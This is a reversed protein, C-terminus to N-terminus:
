EKDLRGVLSLEFSAGMYKFHPRVSLAVQYWGPDDAVDLVQVKASRLPRRSRVEAPPNEQDAVYQRIWGNLERELDQREKWTGLQERQLVKLYHALRNVIFLYPLQTGLRHNLTAQQGEPSNAFLKPKQVSNASFFAANNSEKRMTLAIFGEEALEYERRDTILVETPIKAQRQGLAEFLHVPLDRIAGGSQPGIINPCWRYKAFSDTLATALLFATNGWLYHHQEEATQEQYHFGRVPNDDPDYPLRALFRPATLGLYRSDESERLARWRTHTPGEFLSKLDKIAALESFNDLGFFSPAVSSLFPAHVMAGVASLHHLLRIDPASPTFAYDGIVAAIPEGGFQGYGSAYLHQYFASQTPEAAEDFNDLLEQQTANLVLIRINERFNTRDVLLKLSRWSAELQQLAPTHLIEDMLQGLQRDIGVILHDVCAKNISIAGPEADGLNALLAAVGRGTMAYGDDDPTLRAHALVEHLLSSQPITECRTATPLSM